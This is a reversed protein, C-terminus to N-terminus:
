LKVYLVRYGDRAIENSLECSKFLIDIQFAIIIHKHSEFLQIFTKMYETVLAHRCCSNLHEVVSESFPLLPVVKGAAIRTNCNNFHQEATGESSPLLPVPGPVIIQKRRCVVLENELPGLDM